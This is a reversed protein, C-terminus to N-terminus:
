YNKIFFICLIPNTKKNIKTCKKEQCVALNQPIIKRRYVCTNPYFCFFLPKRRKKDKTHSYTNEKHTTFM